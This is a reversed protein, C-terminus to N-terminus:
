LNELKDVEEWSLDANQISQNLIKLVEKKCANWGFAYIALADPENEEKTDLVADYNNSM